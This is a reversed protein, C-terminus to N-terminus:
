GRFDNRRKDVKERFVKGIRRDVPGANTQITVVDATARSVHQWNVVTSRHIQLVDHHAFHQLFNNLSAYYTIEGQRCHIALRGSGYDAFYFDRLRVRHSNVWLEPISRRYLDEPPLDAPALRFRDSLEKGHAEYMLRNISTRWNHILAPKALVELLRNSGAQQWVHNSENGTYILVPLNGLALLEKIVGWGEEVGGAGLHLDVVVLDVTKKLEPWHKDFEARSRLIPHLKYGLTGLDTKIRRSELYNDEILLIRPDIPTPM